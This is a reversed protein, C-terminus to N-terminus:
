SVRLGGTDLVGPDGLFVLGGGLDGVVGTLLSCSVCVCRTSVGGFAGDFGLGRGLPGCVGIM